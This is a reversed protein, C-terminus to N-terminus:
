GLLGPWKAHHAALRVECGGVAGDGDVVLPILMDDVPGSQPVGAVCQNATHSTFASCPTNKREREGCWCPLRKTQLPVDQTPIAHLVDTGSLHVVQRGLLKLIGESHPPPPVLLSSALELQM